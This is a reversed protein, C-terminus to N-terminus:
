PKTLRTFFLLKADAQSCGAGVVFVDVKEPKSTPLVVVLAPQGEYAAYDLALPVGADPDAPDTLAVLCAALGADTRLTALPDAAAPAAASRGLTATPGPVATDKEASFVKASATAPAGGELLQPLALRLAKGDHNYDTGTNSLAFSTGEETDGGDRQQVVVVTGVALAAAAAVAGLVPLLRTRRRPALPVVTAVRPGRAAEVAAALRDGLGAPEAPVGLASLSTAVAPLAGELRVLAARCDECADLHASPGVGALVDALADLDLHESM